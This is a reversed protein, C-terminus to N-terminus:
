RSNTCPSLYHTNVCVDWFMIKGVYCRVINDLIFTHNLINLQVTYIDCSMYRFM